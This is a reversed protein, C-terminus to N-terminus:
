GKRWAAIILLGLVPLFLFLPWLVFLARAHAIGTNWGSYLFVEGSVPEACVDAVVTCAPDLFWGRFSSDERTLVEEDVYSGARYYYVAYEADGDMLHLAYWPTQGGDALGLWEGDLFSLRDTIFNGLEEVKRDFREQKRDWRLADMEMSARIFGAQEELTQSAWNQLYPRFFERYVTKVADMFEPKECLARYWTSHERHYIGQPLSCGSFWAPQNGFSFEYDWPAGFYLKGERYFCYNSGNWGDPCKSIEDLVYKKVLSDADVLEQWSERGVGEELIADEAEQVLRRISEHKGASAGEQKTQPYGIALIEGADTYFGPKGETEWYGDFEVMWGSERDQATPRVKQSLLYNGYYEGNIYLDVWTSQPVDAIGASRMMEFVMRNILHTEESAGALLVWQDDETPSLLEVPQSFHLSFSKKELLWTYNGRGKIEEFAGDYGAEGTETLFSVKGGERNGKEELVHDLKGSHTTLWVSPLNESRMVRVTWEGGGGFLKGKKVLRYEKGDEMGCAMGDEMRIGDLWWDAAAGVRWSLRGRASPLFFCLIDGDEKLIGCIEQVTEGYEIQLFVDPAAAEQQRGWLVAFLALFVLSVLLPLRVRKRYKM